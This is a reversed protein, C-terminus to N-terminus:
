LQSMKPKQAVYFKFVSQPYDGILQTLIFLHSLSSTYAIRGFM